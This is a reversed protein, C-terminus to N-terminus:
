TGPKKYKFQRKWEHRNSFNFSYNMKVSYQQQLLFNYDLKNEFFFLTYTPEFSLNPFVTFKLTHILRHRFRADASNDASVLFFYDSFEQFNYSVTDNIPVNVKMTWYAGYRDQPGRQVGVKSTNAVLTAPHAQNFNNICNTLSISAQLRCPV